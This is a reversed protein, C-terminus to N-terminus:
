NCCFCKQAGTAGNSWTYSATAPTATAVFTVTDGECVTQDVGADVTVNTAVAIAVDDNASCGNSDVVTLTYTTSASATCMPNTITTDSLGASPSWITSALPAGTTYSFNVRSISGTGNAAVPSNANFAALTGQHILRAIAANQGNITITSPPGYSNVGSRYGLIGIVDGTSVPVATPLAYNLASIGSGQAEITYNTTTTGFQPPVVGGGWFIVFEMDGSSADTPM